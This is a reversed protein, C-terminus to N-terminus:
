RRLELSRVIDQVGKWDSNETVARFLEIMSDKGPPVHRGELHMIRTMMQDLTCQRWSLIWIIHSTSLM